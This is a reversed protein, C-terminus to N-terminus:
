AAQEVRRAPRDRALTSAQEHVLLPIGESLEAVRQVDEATWGDPEYIRCIDAIDEHGLTLPDFSGPYIAVVNKM